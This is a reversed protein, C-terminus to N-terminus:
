GASPRIQKIVRKVEQRADQAQSMVPGAQSEGALGACEPLDVAAGALAQAFQTDSSDNELVRNLLTRMEDPHSM